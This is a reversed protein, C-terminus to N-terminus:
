PETASWELFNGTEFASWFITASRDYFTGAPDARIEVRIRPSSSPPAMTYHLVAGPQLFSEVIAAKCFGVPPPAPGSPVFALEVEANACDLELSLHVSYDDATAAIRDAGTMAFRIMNVDEAVLGSLRTGSGIKSYMLSQTGPHQLSSAVFENASAAYNSGTPLVTLSRSFSAQQITTSDILVPDNDSRRFWSVSQVQMPQIPCNPGPCPPCCPTCATSGSGQLAALRPLELEQFAPIFPCANNHIDTRDGPASGQSVNTANVSAALSTLQGCGSPGDLDCVGTRWYKADNYLGGDESVDLEVLNSHGLGMACHGLEHLVVWQLSAKGSPAPENSTWCDFCNGYRAKLENWTEVASLLPLLLGESGAEVCIGIEIAGGAQLYGVPHVIAFPPVYNPDTSPLRRTFRDIEFYTGASLDSTMAAALAVGLLVLRVRTLKM